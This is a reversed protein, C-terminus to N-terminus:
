LKKGKAVAWHIEWNGKVLAASNHVCPHEHVYVCWEFSSFFFLHLVVELYSMESM